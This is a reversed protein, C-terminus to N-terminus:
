KVAIGFKVSGTNYFNMDFFPQFEWPKQWMTPYETRHGVIIPDYFYIRSSGLFDSGQKDKRTVTTSKKETSSITEEKEGEKVSLNVPGIGLKIEGGGQFKAANVHVSEYTDTITTEVDGDQEYINVDRHLGEQALDWSDLGIKDPDLYVTKPTFRSVDISYTHREKRFWTKHIKDDKIHFDWLQEPRLDIEKVYPQTRGASIVEFVFNYSGQTWMRKIQDETSVGGERTSL